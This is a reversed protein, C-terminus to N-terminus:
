FGRFRELHEGTVIPEKGPAQKVELLGRYGGDKYKKLWRTITAEDRGLREALTRRSTFQGTKLWYLMQLRELSSAEVAYKVAKELEETSQKIEVQLKLGM